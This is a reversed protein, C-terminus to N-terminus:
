ASQTERKRCKNNVDDQESKLTDMTPPTTCNISVHKVASGNFHWWNDLSAYFKCEHRDNNSINNAIRDDKYQKYLSNFKRKCAVPTRNFGQVSAVMRAHLNSWSDVGVFCLRWEYVLSQNFEFVLGILTSFGIYCLRWVYVLIKISNFVLGILTSFGVYCECLVLNSVM